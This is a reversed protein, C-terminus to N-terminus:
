KTGTQTCLLAIMKRLIKVQKKNGEQQRIVHLKLLTKRLFRQHGKQLRKIHRVNAKINGKTIPLVEFRRLSDMVYYIDFTEEADPKQKASM